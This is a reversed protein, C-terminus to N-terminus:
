NIVVAKLNGKERENIKGNERKICSRIKLCATYEPIFTSPM